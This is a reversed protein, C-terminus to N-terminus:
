RQALHLAVGGPGVYRFRVRTFGAALLARSLERADLFRGVSAPLYSYAEADGAVLRGLRPVVRDFYLGFLRARPGDHPRTIELCVFRGGPRLVRRLERLAADLPQVNRLVFAATAADFSADPFPLATASALAYRPLAGHRKRRARALMLAALDVAVVRRAQPQAALALALDGTGAGVDLLDVAGGALAATVALRRWRRDQGATMLRNMLDYRGAIRGFMAGVRRTHDREDEGNLAM